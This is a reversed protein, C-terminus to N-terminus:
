EYIGADMESRRNKSECYRYSEDFDVKKSWAEEGYLTKIESGDAKIEDLNDKVNVLHNEIEDEACDNNYLQVNCCENFINLPYFESTCSYQNCKNNESICGIKNNVKARGEPSFKNSNINPKVYYCGNRTCTEEDNLSSCETINKDVPKNFDVCINNKADWKCSPISSGDEHKICTKQTRNKCYDYSDILRSLIVNSIILLPSIYYIMNSDFFSFLIAILNIFLNSFIQYEIKGADIFVFIFVLTFINFLIMPLRIYNLNEKNNDYFYLLTIYFACSFFTILEYGILNVIDYEKSSGKPNKDASKNVTLYKNYSMINFYRDVVINGGCTDPNCKEDQVTCPTKGDNDECGAIHINELLALGIFKFVYHSILLIGFVFGTIKMGCSFYVGIFYVTFLIDIIIGIYYMDKELEFSNPM